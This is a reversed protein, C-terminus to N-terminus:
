PKKPIALDVKGKSADGIKIEITAVTDTARPVFQTPLLFVIKKDTWNTIDAQNSAPITASITSTTLDSNIVLKGGDPREGFGEGTITITAGATQTSKPDITLAPAAPKKAVSLDGKGRSTSGTVVEVTVATPKDAQEFKEPVKFVIKDKSWSQIVKKQSTADTSSVKDNIEATGITASLKLHNGEEPTGFDTGTVIVDKKAEQKPPDLVLKKDTAQTAPTADGSSQKKPPSPVGIRSRFLDAVGNSLFSYSIGVFWSEAARTPLDALANADTVFDGVALATPLRQRTGFIRGVTLFARSGFRLSTGALYSPRTDAISIGFSLPAWSVGRISSSLYLHSLAAGEMKFDDDADSNRSVYFGAVEPTSSNADTDKTGAKLFFRPDVLDHRAVGGAFSLNWLERVPIKWVVEQLGDTDSCSPIKSVTIEYRTTAEDHTVPPLDVQTLKQRAAEQGPRPEDFARTNYQFCSDDTDTIHFVIKDGHAVSIAPSEGAGTHRHSITYDVTKVKSVDVSACAAQILIAIPVLFSLRRQNFVSFEGREM